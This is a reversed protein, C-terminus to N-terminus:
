RDPWPRSCPGPRIQVPWGPQCCTPGKGSVFLGRAAVTLPSKENKKLAERAAAPGHMLSFRACSDARPGSAAM